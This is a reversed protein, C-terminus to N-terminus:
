PKVAGSEEPTGHTDPSHSDPSHAFARELAKEVQVGRSGKFLIADGPRIYESLFNGAEEPTEFFASFFPAASGSMGAEIAGDVMFRAAGRVGLLVDIGQEGAFKGIGRHLNGAEHGLELMEGLVAIRRQAPTEGLLELMSKTAEPNSNYCDNIVTIGDREFREGRMEGASLTGVAEKLTEPAIDL